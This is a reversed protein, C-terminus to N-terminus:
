HGVYGRQDRDGGAGRRGSKSDIGWGAGAQQSRLDGDALGPACNGKALARAQQCQIRLLARRKDSRQVAQPLATHHRRRTPYQNSILFARHQPRDPDAPIRRVNILLTRDRRDLTHPQHRIRPHRGLKKQNKQGRRSCAGVCQVANEHQFEILHPLPSARSPPLETEGRCGFQMGCRITAM